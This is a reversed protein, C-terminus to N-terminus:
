VEINKAAIISGLVGNVFKPSSESGFTKALEVAENVAVKPPVGRSHIIEFIAVRLVNRDVPALQDVPWSPAFTGILGDIEEVRSLIGEVLKRAYPASAEPMRGVDPRATLSTDASHRSNDMEYLAQM